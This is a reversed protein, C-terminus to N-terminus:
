VPNLCRKNVEEVEGRRYRILIEAIRAIDNGWGTLFGENQMETLCENRADPKM